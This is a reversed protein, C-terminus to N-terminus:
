EEHIDECFPFRIGHVVTTSVPGCAMGYQTMAFLIVNDPFLERFEDDAPDPEYEDQEDANQEIELIEAAPNYYEGAADIWSFLLHECPAETPEGLETFVTAGCVPCHFSWAGWVNAIDVYQAM